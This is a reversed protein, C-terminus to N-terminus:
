IEITRSDSTYKQSICYHRRGGTLVPRVFDEVYVIKGSASVIAGHGTISGGTELRFVENKWAKMLFDATHTGKMEPSVFRSQVEWIFEGAVQNRNLGTIEAIQRNWELIRGSDDILIIGFNLNDIITMLRSEHETLALNEEALHLLRKRPKKPGTDLSM